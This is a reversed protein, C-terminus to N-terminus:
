NIRIIVKLAKREELIEFARGVEDIEMTHSYFKKLDIKKNKILDVVRDHSCREDQLIHTLAWTPPAKAWNINFSSPGAGYIGIKGGHALISYADNILENKGVAEVIHTAGKGETYEMVRDKLDERNSNIVFDAGSRLALDLRKDRLGTMIIPNVRLIKAIAAFIIAVPGSGLIVLRSKEDLGFKDSWDLVERLTIIMTSDVPDFEKPITQQYIHWLTFDKESRRNDEIDAEYDTVLGFESFGGFLSYYEGLRDGPYVAVPRVVLDGTKYNKVESGTEIVRGISEHGLIGPFNAFDKSLTGKILKKDTSNCTACAIIEVLAQYPGMQPEPVDKVKLVGPSEVVAAKM